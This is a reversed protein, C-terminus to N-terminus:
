IWLLERAGDQDRTTGVGGAHVHVTAPASLRILLKNRLQGYKRSM